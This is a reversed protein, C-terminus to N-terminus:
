GCTGRPSGPLHAAPNPWPKKASGANMVWSSTVNALRYKAAAVGGAVRRRHRQGPPRQHLQAGVGPDFRDLERQGAHVGVDVVVQRQRHDARAGLQASAPRRSAGRRSGSPPRAARRPRAPSGATRRTPARVRRRGIVLGRYLRTAFQVMLEARSRAQVLAEQEPCHATVWYRAPQKSSPRAADAASALRRSSTVTQLGAASLRLHPEARPM